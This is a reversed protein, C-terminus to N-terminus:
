KSQWECVRMDDSCGVLVSNEPANRAQWFLRRIYGMISGGAIDGIESASLERVDPNEISTNTTTMIMIRQIETKRKGDRNKPSQISFTPTNQMM